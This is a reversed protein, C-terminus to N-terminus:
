PLTDTIVPNYLIDAVYKFCYYRLTAKNGAEENTQIYDIQRQTKDDLRLITKTINIGVETKPEPYLIETTALVEDPIPGSYDSIIASNIYIASTADNPVQCVVNITVFKQFEIKPITWYICHEAADYTGGSTSSVYILEDPLPDEVCVNCADGGFATNSVKITYNIKQGPKAIPTDTKKEIKLDDNTVIYTNTIAASLVSGDANENYSYSVTYSHKDDLVFTQNDEVPNQLSDLERVAYNIKVGSSDYVKLAECKYSWSIGDVVSDKNLSFTEVPSSDTGGAYIAANISDNKHMEPSDTWNKHVIINKTLPVANNIVENSEISETGAFTMVAKNTYQKNESINIPM